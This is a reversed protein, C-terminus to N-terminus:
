SFTNCLSLNFVRPPGNVVGWSTLKPLKMIHQIAADSLPVEVYLSTLSPGCRLVTSSVASELLTSIVKHPTDFEIRLSQLSPAPLELIASTLNAFVEDPVPKLFAYRFSFATLHPSLFLRFFPLPKVSCLWRLERLRPCMIGDLSNESIMHLFLAESDLLDASVYLRRM